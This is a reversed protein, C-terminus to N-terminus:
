RGGGVAARMGALARDRRAEHEAREMPVDAFGLAAIATRYTRAYEALEDALRLLTTPDPAVDALLLYAAAKSATDDPADEHADEWGRQYGLEYAAREIPHANLRAIARINPPKVAVGPPPPPAM